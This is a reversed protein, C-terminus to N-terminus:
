IKDQLHLFHARPLPKTLADALQDKTNVHAVRLAGDQIHGRVFHYDLAIHKMRSHFVPNACLFTAGVNDCFLIPPTSLNIGLETLINCIWRLEAATNAVARYEAETSSRSVGKQKKALWSIPHNGLYVIYANTSAYDHSDGGWDVDSYARLSLNNTSSFFIGHAPTGALYRLIRKTAQWHADTPCHMYQSLRNVAFAIDLRTFQLYQLSGVLQRYPTPDSLPKDTTLTLKPSSAMPTTVPKANTMNHRHLLDIIYKRQSLHLGASTRHVELGLFYNLDEPNKISFRDALLKLIRTIGDKTDGTVLIDDVYVLIYILHTGSKLIFLSSDALSNIFGLSLLFTSLETYWARPAQKLGYVAKNLRCVYSPHDADVFRPPQEMYVEENLTGQLFANNVDLTSFQGFRRLKSLPASPRTTTKVLSSITARRWLDPKADITNVAFADIETSMAGRWRKDQLAQALTRPEAPVSGSLAVSYNYKPNPKTINNKHRTTMQHLNDPPPNAPPPVPPPNAPPPVPPPPVPPSDTSPTSSSSNSPSITDASLSSQSPPVTDTSSSVNTPSTFSSAPSHAMTNSPGPALSSHAPNLHAESLHPPAPSTASGSASVSPLSIPEPSSPDDPSSPSSPTPSTVPAPGGSTPTPEPSIPPDPSPPTPPLAIHSFPPTVPSSEISSSPTHSPPSSKAFPFVTEDFRVHRSIYIRGTAPQLYLCASQTQSYGLFVCPTSRDELKNSTYPRLWPFCLCGYVQLKSYNPAVGFLRQFPSDMQLLSTPQRNILYVATSFAYSWYTKPMASHTLLTLGTEVIHRHKRESIGNHEQTHPPSTFHSIGSNTLISRLAVFEGGNDSYLTGIKTNFRNEVLAKFATFTEKVQSKLLRLVLYLFVHFLTKSFISHLIVSAIIGIPPPLKQDPPLLSPNYLPLLEDKTNGQLLPIGSNLDKVQFHAPFFEVSVKNSNCLRFVSILNKKIHPDCLVQTLSLPRSSSPLSLSGTHSISLGSGDGILVADNGSYPQNHSLNHLDSTMHHTAGTDMLWAASPHPSATAVNAQPQWPRQPTPLLGSAPAQQQPLQPCRRASHGFVGCLQCKGQYGRTSNNTDAAVNATIPAPFSPAQSLIKAEKTLLKEHVETISPSLDRGEIQEVVSKYEEPLGELIFEIQDEHEVPKGLLSLQDFRTQLGQIYEDISKEGKQFQKLQHKLQQIHGRSPKAYTAAVLAWMEKSSASKTVVSQISPTLTGLLASFIFKDQRKWKTYAPNPVSVGDTTITLPPPLTTGDIHSALDYGDLLAHIQVSRTIYNTSTLKTINSMNIHLLSQAQDAITDAAAAM